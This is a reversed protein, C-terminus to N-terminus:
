PPQFPNIGTQPHSSLPTHGDLLLRVFVAGAADRIGSVPESYGKLDNTSVDGAALELSATFLAVPLDVDVRQVREHASVPLDGFTKHAVKEALYHGRLSELCGDLLTLRVLDIPDIDAIKPLLGTAGLTGEDVQEGAGPADGLPHFKGAEFANASEIPERLSALGIATVEMVGEDFAIDAKRLLLRLEVTLNLLAQITTFERDDGAAEGALAEAHRAITDDVIGAVGKVAFEQLDHLVQLGLKDDALVDDSKARHQVAGDFAHDDLVELLGTILHVDRGETRGVVADGLLAVTDDEDTIADPGLVEV